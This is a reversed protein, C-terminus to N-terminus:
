KKIKVKGKVIKLRDNCFWNIAQPLIKYEEKKMRSYLRDVTDDPLIKVESRIIVPGEDVVPTVFHVTSGTIPYRNDIAYEVASDTHKGRIPYLRIKNKYLIYKSGVDPLLNPHLNIVRGPFYKLFEPSLILMWGALVVLDAKYKNKLLNGITDDYELRTKGCSIYDKLDHLETPIKNTKARTLGYSDKKNSLVVVVKGNKIKGDHTAQVIAALNTGTGKNSLLVAIRKIM